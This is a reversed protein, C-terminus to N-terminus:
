VTLEEVRGKWNGRVDGCNPVRFTKGNLVWAFAPPTILLFSSCFWSSSQLEKGRDGM